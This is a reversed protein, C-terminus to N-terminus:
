PASDAAAEGGEARLDFDGNAAWDLFAAYVAVNQALADPDIKDLTDDATHHLDFYTWGDQQLSVAPAGAGSIASVDSGGSASTEGRIVGLPALRAALADAPATDEPGFGTDFRWIRDAGFDSEAVVIHDDIADAHAAVYAKAGILGPEEAGFLVVRITRRPRRGEEAFLSAAATVIAVGSGDDIAGTGLDWSDLHAGVLVIEDPAEAGRIEGIVNGSAGDDQWSTEVVMRVRVTEGLAVIRAIQDADPASVAVAPISPRAEDDHVSMAGTHAVRHSDTGVSRIMVGVAGRREAEAWARGRKAVAPPYGAGTQARTMRDDVYVIKGEFGIEPAAELESMSAFYAVEAEIGEPSTAGSRGLATAYLPQPYPAAIEVNIAGRTWVDMDFPEVHVNEFGLRQLAAVAWDRAREEQATGALRPGIETTLSEVLEYARSSTSAEAVLDDDAAASMMGWFAAAGALASVTRTIAIRRGM